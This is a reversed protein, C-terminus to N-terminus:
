VLHFSDSSGDIRTADLFVPCVAACGGSIVISSIYENKVSM